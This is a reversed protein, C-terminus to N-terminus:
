ENLKVFIRKLINAIIYAIFLLISILCAFCLLIFLTVM